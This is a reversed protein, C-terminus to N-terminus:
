RYDGYSAWSSDNWQDFYSETSQLNTKKETEQRRFSKLHLFIAIFEGIKSDLFIYTRPRTDVIEDAPFSFAM